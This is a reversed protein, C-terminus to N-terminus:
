FLVERTVRQEKILGRVPKEKLCRDRGSLIWNITWPRNGGVLIGAGYSCPVQNKNMAEDKTGRWCYAPVRYNNFTQWISLCRGDEEQSVSYFAALEDISLCNM